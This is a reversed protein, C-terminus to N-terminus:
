DMTPIEQVTHEQLIFEGDIFEYYGEVHFTKLKAAYVDEIFSNEFSLRGTEKDFEVEAVADQEDLLTQTFVALTEWWEFPDPYEINEVFMSDAEITLVRALEGYVSYFGAPRYSYTYLVLYQSENLPILKSVVGYTDSRIEKGDELLFFSFTEYGACYAGCSEICITVARINQASVVEESYVSQNFDVSLISDVESIDLQELPMEMSDMAERAIIERYWQQLDENPLEEVHKTPQAFVSGIAFSFVVLFLSRLNM